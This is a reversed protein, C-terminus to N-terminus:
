LDMDFILDEDDDEWENLSRSSLTVAEHLTAALDARSRVRRIGTRSARLSSDDGFNRVSTPSQSLGSQQHQAQTHRTRVVHDILAQNEYRLAVDKTKGQQRRMGQVVRAYFCYDQYDAVMAHHQSEAEEEPTQRNGKAIPISRSHTM